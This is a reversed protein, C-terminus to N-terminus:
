FILHIQRKNEYAQLLKIINPHPNIAGLIRIESYVRKKKKPEMLSYKEYIKIAFTRDKSSASKVKANAGSGLIQKIEM